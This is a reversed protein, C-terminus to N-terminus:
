RASQGQSALDLQAQYVVLGMFRVINCEHPPCAAFNFLEKVLSAADACVLRKLAIPMRQEKYRQMEAVSAASRRVPGKGLRKLTAAASMKVEEIEDPRLIRSVSWPM